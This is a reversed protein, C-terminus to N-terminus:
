MSFYAIKPKGGLNTKDKTEINEYINNDMKERGSRFISNIRIM